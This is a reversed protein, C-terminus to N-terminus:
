FSGAFMSVNTVDGSFPQTISDTNTPGGLKLARTSYLVTLTMAIVLYSDNRIYPILSGLIKPIGDKTLSVSTPTIRGGLYGLLSLRVDKIYSLTFKEGRDKLLRHLRMILGLLSELSVSGGEKSTLNSTIWTVVKPLNYFLKNM